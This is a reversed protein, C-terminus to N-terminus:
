DPYVDKIKKGGAPSTVCYVSFSSCINLKYYDLEFLCQSSCDKTM